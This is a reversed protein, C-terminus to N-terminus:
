VDRLAEEYSQCLRLMQFLLYPQDMYAGRVPLVEPFNMEYYMSLIPGKNPIKILRRIAEDKEGALQIKSMMYNEVHEEFQASARNLLIGAAIQM